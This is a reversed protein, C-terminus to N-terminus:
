EWFLLAASDAVFRGRPTLALRGDAPYHALGEEVLQQVKRQTAPSLADLTSAPMNRGATELCALPVGRRTRLLLALREHRVDEPTLEERECTVEQGALARTVYAKTDPLNKWRVGTLTSVAGPGLGLYDEGEWYSQNHLSEFGLRAYNSVEYQELGAAALREQALLFFDADREENPQFEGSQLREFFATDEEYNLNYASVHDPQLACTEALTQEWSALSQGPISFMLDVSCVPFGAQRMLEYSHRAEDPTHDRGLTALVAPDWSQVGLSLRTVGYDRLLRLKSAKFTRPNAEFTWERVGSLDVLRHLEALFTDLHQEKPLTPTGGGFYVTELRFEVRERWSALHALLARLFAEVDYGALRHKYFSCYPCIRHCFPVHFYLHTIQPM